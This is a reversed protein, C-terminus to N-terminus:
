AENYKGTQYTKKGWGTEVNVGDLDKGDLLDEAAEVNAKNTLGGRDDEFIAEKGKPNKGHKM